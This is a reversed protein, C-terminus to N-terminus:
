QIMNETKRKKILWYGSAAIGLLAMPIIYDNIPAAPFDDAGGDDVPPNDTSPPFDDAGGDDVPPNQAFSSIAIMMFSVLFLTRFKTKKIM